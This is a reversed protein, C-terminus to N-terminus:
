VFYAVQGALTMVGAAPTAETIAVFSLAVGSGSAIFDIYTQAAVGRAGITTYGAKTIGDWILCGFASASANVTFPLGSIRLNGTASGLTFSSTTISVNAIVLRGVKTYVGVQTSYAVSLTGPSASTLAPTFTGEEYDDLTNADASAVQTAPFAIQGSSLTILGGATFAPLTWTGSATWTGKGVSANLTKNTLEDTTAKGVLTDTAAPLTLTVTGLAGAPPALSISGSTANFFGLKGAAAGAVGLTFEGRTTTFRGSEVDQIGFIIPDAGSTDIVIGGAAAAANVFVMNQLLAIGTYGSSTGGFSGLVGQDTQVSFSAAASTGAHVNKVRMFKTSNTGTGDGIIQDGSTGEVTWQPLNVYRSTVTLLPLNFINAVTFTQGARFLDADASLPPSTWDDDNSGLTVLSGWSTAETPTNSVVMLAADTETGRSATNDRAKCAMARLGARIRVTSLSDVAVEGEAGVMTNKYGGGSLTTYGVVGYLGLSNNTVPDTTTSHVSGAVGIRDGPSTANGATDGIVGALACAQGALNAGGTVMNVRYAVAAANNQGFADAGSGTVASQHTVTILNYPQPGATSTTPGSQTITLGQNYTSTTPTINVAAAATYTGGTITKGTFTVATPISIIPNGSVGNGNTVTIEASTGTITRAAGTGDGTRAWLGNSINAALAALDVDYAQVDTGIIHASTITYVGGSLTVTIGEGGEITAALRPSVKAKLTARQALKLKM